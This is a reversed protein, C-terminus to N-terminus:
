SLYLTNIYNLDFNTNQNIFVLFYNNLNATITDNFISYNNSFINVDFKNIFHSFFYSFTRTGYNNGQSTLPTALKNINRLNYNKNLQHNFIIKCKLDIPTATCNLINFSFRFLKLLIRHQFSYLNYNLLLHNFNNFDIRLKIEYKLNLLKFLCIYYLNAIKQLSYKPFYIFLSNCYDFFPLLFTKFFQIKVKFSFYFLDKISFLRKNVNIRLNNVFSKFSLKNDIIVGLLKFESVVKVSHGNIDITDPYTINRKNSVFMVETKSWNIDFRNICCWNMLKQIYDNFDNLLRNFNSNSFQLTTDDAFMTCNSNNTKINGLDNIFILFLIPGLCSGQPVGLKIDCSDSMCDNFKVIQSRDDFYNKLLNIAKTNLGYLTLKKLLLSSNVLDFAKRFDIFLMLSILRDNRAQNLESIIKHLATECSHQSRFGFQSRYFLNNKDFYSVLQSSLVKEFIKGIPPLVSICRYNNIDNFSGKNKYLASVIATKWEIPIKCQDICNNFLKALFPSIKDSTAKLVNVPIDSIGPGCSTMLNSILKSVFSTTVHSFTFKDSNLISKDIFTDFHNLTYDDFSFQSVASTPSVSTFYTNFLNSIDKPNSKTISGNTISKPINVNSKDSKIVYFKSYFKFFLKSNKFDNINKCKFYDIIKIDKLNSYNKKNILFEYYLQSSKDGSLIYKKYTTDRLNKAKALENDFWPTNTKKNKILIESKPAIKDIVKILENKFMIWKSDTDLDNYTDLSIQAIDLDMNIKNLRTTNLRRSFFIKDDNVNSCIQQISLECTILKHDSFPCDVAMSSTILDSNHLILDLVSESKIYKNQEKYYKTVSRTTKNMYSTLNLGNMFNSIINKFRSNSLDINFDGILFLPEDLNTTFLFNDIVDLFDFSNELPNKYCSLFNITQNNIMLKFYVAEISPFIKISTIIYSKRIYVLIGGSANRCSTKDRRIINYNTNSFSNDPVFENLNTENLTFVDPSCCEIITQIDIIKMMLSDINLHFISFKNKSLKNRLNDM